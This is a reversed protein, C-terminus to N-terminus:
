VLLRAIADSSVFVREISRLRKGQSLSGLARYRLPVTSPSDEPEGLVSARVEIRDFAEIGLM